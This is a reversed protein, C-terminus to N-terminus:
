TQTGVVTGDTDSTPESSKIRLDGTADVWLYYAGFRQAMTHARIGVGYGYYSGNLTSNVIVHNEQGSSFLFVAATATFNEFRCQTCSTALRDGTFSGGGVSCNVCLQWMFGGAGTQVISGVQVNQCNRMFAAASQVDAVVSRIFGSRMNSLVRKNSGSVVADIHGISLHNTNITIFNIYSNYVVDTISNNRLYVSDIGLYQCGLEGANYTVFAACRNFGEASFHGIKARKINRLLLGDEIAAGPAYSPSSQAAYTPSLALVGIEINDIYDAATPSVLGFCRGKIYGIRGNICPGSGVNAEVDMHTFGCRTGTVSEVSFGDASVCSVGNRYVNDFTVNGVHVNTLKYLAGTAQGFYVVDGRIDEGYIDGIHINNLNGVTANAQIYIAHNQEDTDTAINGKVTMSGIRVNSGGVVFMRTGVATGALQHCVTAFGDTVLERNAPITVTSLRYSVAPAPAYVNKAAAFAATFAATDDTVGDGVAGFDKVSVTQALKAEVNTQVGSLFPPDYIVDEANVGSVVVDSYRETAAPASYVSSGNKNMVRISYDSNVYLRAPTGSNSPYGALTRIPQAAPLTLAADWYVNIPNTQPDLNATGIWVYGDELPQGDIDTFIPYTPQISLASM